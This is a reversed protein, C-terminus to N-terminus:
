IRSTTRAGRHKASTDTLAAGIMGECAPSGVVISFYVWVSGIMWSAGLGKYPGTTTFHGPFNITTVGFNGPYLNEPAGFKDVLQLLVGSVLEVDYEAEVDKTYLKV